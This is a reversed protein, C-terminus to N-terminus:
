CGVRRAAPPGAGPQWDPDEQCRGATGAPTWTSALAQPYWPPAGAPVEMQSRQATGPRAAGRPAAVRRAGTPQPQAGLTAPADMQM